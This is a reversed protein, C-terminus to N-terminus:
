SGSLMVIGSAIQDGNEVTVKGSIQILTGLRGEVKVEVVLTQGPTATGLIKANKVSTLRMDNLRPQEPDSQAAVGGLQAIAEIMIVGPWMPNNPFHGELFAEDGSIQYTGTAGVGPELDTVNQIFRFSPGHPLLDLEQQHSM